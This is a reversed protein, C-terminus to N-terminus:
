SHNSVAKTEEEFSLKNVMRTLRTIRIVKLLAILKLKDGLLPLLDFPLSSLLDIIFMGKMYHRAINARSRVEEGEVDYYSTNFAFGIDMM